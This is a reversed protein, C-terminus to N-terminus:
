QQSKKASYESYSGDYVRVDGHGAHKLAAFLYTATNGSQCQTIIKQTFDLNKSALIERIEETSKVTCDATQLNKYFLSHGDTLHGNAYSADPRADLVLTDKPESKSELDIITQYDAFLAPNFTYNFSDAPGTENKSVTREEKLWKALGGNLVSVSLHGFVKFLWFARTSMYLGKADYLVVRSQLRVNHKKMTDKFLDLPPITNPFPASANKLYRLDLFESGPIHSNHYNLIADGDEPTLSMTCDFVKLDKETEILKALEDTEIFVPAERQEM